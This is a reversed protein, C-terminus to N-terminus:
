TCQWIKTEKRAVEKKTYIFNCDLVEKSTLVIVPRLTTDLDQIDGTGPNNVVKLGRSWFWYGYSWDNYLPLNSDKSLKISEDVLFWDNQTPSQMFFALNWAILCVFAVM